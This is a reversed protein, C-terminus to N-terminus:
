LSMVILKISAVKVEPEAYKKSLDKLDIECFFDTSFGLSNTQINILKLITSSEKDWIDIPVRDKPLINDTVRMSRHADHALM